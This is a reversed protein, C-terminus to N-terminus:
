LPLHDADKSVAVHALLGLGPLGKDIPEPLREAIVFNGECSKCAYKPWVHQPVIWNAPVYELQERTEEGIKIRPTGCDSCPLQDAPVDHIISKRPLSAPLPM